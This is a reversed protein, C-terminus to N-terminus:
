LFAEKLNFIDADTKVILRVMEESAVPGVASLWGIPPFLRLFYQSPLNPQFSFPFELLSRGVLRSFRYAYAYLLPRCV